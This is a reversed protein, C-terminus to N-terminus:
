GFIGPSGGRTCGLLFTSDASPRPRCGSRRSLRRRSARPSRSGTSTAPSTTAATPAPTRTARTATSSAASRGRRTTTSTAPRRASGSASSATSTCGVESPPASAGSSTGSATTSRRAQLKISATPPRPRSSAASSARRSSSSSRAAPPRPRGRRSSTASSRRDVAVPVRSVFSSTDPDLSGDAADAVMILHDAGYYIGADPPHRDWAGYSGNMKLHSGIAGDHGMGSADVAVTSGVPENFQLDLVTGPVALAAAQSADATAHPSSPSLLALAVADLITRSTRLTRGASSRPGLRGSRVGIQRSGVRCRRQVEGSMGLRPCTRTFPARGACGWQRRPRSGRGFRWIPSTGRRASERSTGGSGRM